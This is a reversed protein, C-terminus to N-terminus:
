VHYYYYSITHYPIQDGVIPQQYHHGYLYELEHLHLMEIVRVHVENVVVILPISQYLTQQGIKRTMTMTM